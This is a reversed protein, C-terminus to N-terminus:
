LSWSLLWFSQGRGVDVVPVGVLFRRAGRSRIDAWVAQQLEETIIIRGEGDTAPTESFHAYAKKMEKLNSGARAYRFVRADKQFRTGWPYRPTESVEDIEQLLTKQITLPRLAEDKVIRFILENDKNRGPILHCDIDGDLTKVVLTGHLVFINIGLVRSPDIGLQKCIERGAEESHGPIGKIEERKETREPRQTM